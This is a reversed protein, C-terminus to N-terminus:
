RSKLKYTHNQWILNPMYSIEKLIFDVRKIINQNPVIIPKYGFKKYTSLLVNQIELAKEKSEKRVFSTSYNELFDLLFIKDYRNKEAIKYFEKPAVANYIKCYAITDIIGRDIFVSNDSTNIKSEFELQKFILKKQFAIADKEWLPIGPKNFEEAVLISAAEKITQYGIKSLQNITTTKGTCPGGTLVYKKM